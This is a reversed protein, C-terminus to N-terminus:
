EKQATENQDDEPVGAVISTLISIFGAVASVSLVNLWDIDLVAQGVTIMSLIVQCVTRLARLAAAKWFAKSTIDTMIRERM